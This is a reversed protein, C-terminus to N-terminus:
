AWVDYDWGDGIIKAARVSSTKLIKNNFHMEMYMALGIWGLKIMSGGFTSGTFYVKQREPLKKGGQAWIEGKNKTVELTYTSNKTTVIIKTGAKLKHINVGQNQADIAQQLRPEFSM